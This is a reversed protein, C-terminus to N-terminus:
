KSRKRSYSLRRVLRLRAFIRRGVDSGDLSLHFVSVLAPEIGVRRVDNGLIFLPGEEREGCILFALIEDLVEPASAIWIRVRFLIFVALLIVLTDRVRVFM